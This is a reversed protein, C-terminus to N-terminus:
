QGYSTKVVEGSGLIHGVEVGESGLARTILWYRHCKLYNAESCMIALRHKQAIMKLRELGALYGPAEALRDYDVKGDPGYYQEDAPRGGLLHGLYFYGIGTQELSAKLLERNFQHAYRSYPHSRIDVLIEIEHQALLGMFQEIPINSHGITYIM